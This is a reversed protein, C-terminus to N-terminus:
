AADDKKKTSRPVCTVDPEPLTSPTYRNIVQHEHWSPFCGYRIGDHEYEHVLGVIRIEELWRRVKAPPLDDNPYIFGNIANTAALFRGDDDAFSILGLATLRADRSLKAVTGSGWFSPKTTRIRAM